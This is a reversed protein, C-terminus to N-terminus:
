KKNLTELHRRKTKREKNVDKKPPINNKKRTKNTLENSKTNVKKVM